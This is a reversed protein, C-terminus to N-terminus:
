TTARASAPGAAPRRGRRGGPGRSRRCRPREWRPRPRRWRPRHAGRPCSRHLLRLLGHHLHQPIGGVGRLPLPPAGRRPAGLGELVRHLEELLAVARELEDGGPLPEHAQERVLLLKQGRPVADGPVGVEHAQAVLVPRLVQVEVPADAALAVEAHGERDPVRHLRVALAVELVRDHSGSSLRGTSGVTSTGGPKVSACRSWGPPKRPSVSTKSVQNVLESEGWIAEPQSSRGSRWWLSKGMSRRGCLWSIM